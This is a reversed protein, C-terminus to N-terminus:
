GTDPIQGGLKLPLDSLAEGLRVASVDPGYNTAGTAVRGDPFTRTKYVTKGGDNHLFTERVLVSGDDSEITETTIEGDFM